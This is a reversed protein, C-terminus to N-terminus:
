AVSHGRPDARANIVIRAAKGALPHQLNHLQPRRRAVAPTGDRLQEIGLQQLLAQRRPSKSALYLLPASM